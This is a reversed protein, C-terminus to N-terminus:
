KIYNKFIVGIRFQVVNYNQNLRMFTYVLLNFFFYKFFLKSTFRANNKKMVIKVDLSIVLICIPVNEM